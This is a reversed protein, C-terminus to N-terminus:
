SCTLGSAVFALIFGVPFSSWGLACSLPTSAYSVKFCCSSSATCSSSRVNLGWRLALAIGLLETACSSPFLPLSVIPPVVLSAVCCPPLPYLHPPTFSPPLLPLPQLFCYLLLLLQTPLSASRPTSRSLAHSPSLTLLLLRM